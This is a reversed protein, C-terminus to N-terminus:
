TEKGPNFDKATMGFTWARAEASTRIRPPVSLLTPTGKSPCRVLLHLREGQRILLGHEEDDDVICTEQAIEAMIKDRVSEGLGAPVFLTAGAGAFTITDDVAARFYNETAYPAIDTNGGGARAM